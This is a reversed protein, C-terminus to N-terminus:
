AAPARFTLVKSTTFMHESRGGREGKRRLGKAELAKVADLLSEMQLEDLEVLLADLGRLFHSEGVAVLLSM